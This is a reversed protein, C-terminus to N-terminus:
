KTKSGNGKRCQTPSIGYAQKFSRAFYSNDDFGCSLAVDGIPMTTTLIQTKAKELRIQTIFAGISLGTINKVKRNLQSYSMCMDNALSSTSFDKEGIREQIRETLSVVFPRDSPNIEINDEAYSMDDAHEQKGGLLERRIKERLLHRRELLRHIHSYLEEALFPKTLYADAGADVGALRDEERTRASIIIFPIHNLDETNRIRRCLEYGDMNPMMIDSIILDPVTREAKALAEVGDNATLVNYSDKLLSYVYKSIDANDEVVLITEKDQQMGNGKERLQKRDTNDNMLDTYGANEKMIAEEKWGVSNWPKTVVGERKLPLTLCVLAGGQKNNSATIEGGILRVIQKVYNLGIGSGKVTKNKNNSGQYFMDFIYPLEDPPFGCGTDSIKLLLNHGRTDIAVTINGGPPTFKISNGIINRLIKATFEEVFDMQIDNTATKLDLTIGELAAYQRYSEMAMKIYLVINGTVWNENEAKNMMIRSIDLLQNVLSLLTSSQKEITTLTDPMDQPNVKKEKLQHVLGIIITIPTRFEHTLNTFFTNRMNEMRKMSHNSKTRLRLAYFMFLLVTGILALIIISVILIVHKQKLQEEFSMKMQELDKRGKQREYNLRLSQMKDINKENVISDNIDNAKKYYVLAQQPNGKTEEYESLLRYISAVHERSRISQATALSENIFNIALHPHNMKMHVRALAVSSELQHWKDDSESMIRYAIAYEQLAKDYQLKNEAIRGFHNHCLSIGLNSKAKTNFELSKNYYWLASDINGINEKISGINAYNIAMGLDSKLEKEGELARRFVREANTNDGLSLQINGIGNLSIVVNKRNQFATDKAMAESYRLGEYHHTLAEDLLGMRRLDTGVNNNAKIINLTDGIEMAIKLAEQHTKLANMFDSHERLEKGQTIMQEVSDSKQARQQKSLGGKCGLLLTAIALLIIPFHKNM